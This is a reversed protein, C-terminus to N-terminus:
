EDLVHCDVMAVGSSIMNLQRAAGRSLDIVRDGIFPGRDNIQVVCSNGTKRNTVLLRTGFPLSRHAATMADQDYRQGNSTRRGHFKGGYWSAEGSFSGNADRAATSLANRGSAVSQGGCAIRLGNVIKLSAEMNAAVPDKDTSPALSADFSIVTNGRYQIGASSASRAPMLENVDTKGDDLLEQLRAALDEAREAATGEGLEARFTILDRGNVSVSAVETNDEQWVVAEVEPKIAQPAATAPICTLGTVPLLALLAMIPLRADTLNM